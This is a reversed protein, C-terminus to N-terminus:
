FQEMIIQAKALIDKVVPPVALQEGRKLIYKDKGIWTTRDELPTVVCLKPDECIVKKVVGPANPNFIESTGTEGPYTRREAVEENVISKAM